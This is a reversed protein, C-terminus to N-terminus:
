RSGRELSRLSFMYEDIESNNISYNKYMLVTKHRTKVNEMILTYARYFNDYVQRIDTATLRKLLSGHKDYFDVKTVVFNERNLYYIRKSYGTIKKRRSSTPIVEVKYCVKGDIDENGLLKFSYENLEMQDLDEYSFDSGMFADSDEGASIRRSKKLAPLYLYRSEDDKSHEVSLFGTGKVDSPQLFRILTSTHDNDDRITFREITRTRKKNSSNILEMTLQSTETKFSFQKDNEQMIQLGTMEQAKATTLAIFISM